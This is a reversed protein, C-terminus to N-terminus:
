VNIKRIRLFLDYSLPIAMTQILSVAATAQPSPGRTPNDFWV